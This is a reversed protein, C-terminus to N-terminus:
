VHYLRGPPFHYGDAKEEELSYASKKVTTKKNRTTKAKDAIRANKKKEPCTLTLRRVQGEGEKEGGKNKEPPRGISSQVAARKVSLFACLERNSGTLPPEVTSVERKRGYGPATRNKM